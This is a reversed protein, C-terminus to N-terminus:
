AAVSSSTSWGKVGRNRVKRCGMDLVEDRQRDARGPIGRRDGFTAAQTCCPELSDLGIDDAIEAAVVEGDAGHRQAM